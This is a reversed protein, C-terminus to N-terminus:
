KALRIANIELSLHFLKSALETHSIHLQRGVYVLEEAGPWNTLERPQAVLDLELILLALELLKDFSCACLPAIDVWLVFPKGQHQRRKTRRPLM